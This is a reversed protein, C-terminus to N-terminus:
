STADHPAGADASNASGPTRYTWIDMHMYIYIHIHIYVCMYM